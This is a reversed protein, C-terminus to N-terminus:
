KPLDRFLREFMSRIADAPYALGVVVSAGTVDEPRVPQPQGVGDFRMNEGKTIEVYEGYTQKREIVGDTAKAIRQTFRDRSAAKVGLSDFSSMAANVVLKGLPVEVKVGLANTFSFRSSPSVGENWLRNNRIAMQPILGGSGPTKYEETLLLLYRGGPLELLVARDSFALGDIALDRVYHIKHQDIMGALNRLQLERDENPDLVPKGKRQERWPLELRELPRAVDPTLPVTLDPNAAAGAVFFVSDGSVLADIAAIVNQEALQYRMDAVVPHDEGVVELFTGVMQDVTCRSKERLRLVTEFLANEFQEANMRLLALHHPRILVSLTHALNSPLVDFDIPKSAKPKPHAVPVEPKLGRRNLNEQVASKARSKPRTM